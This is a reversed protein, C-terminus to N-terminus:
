QEGTQHRVSRTRGDQLQPEPRRVQLHGPLVGRVARLHHESRRPEQPEVVGAFLLLNSLVPIVWDYHATTHSRFRFLAM